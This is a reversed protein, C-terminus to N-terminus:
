LHWNATVGVRRPEGFQVFSEPTYGTRPDNGFYFGRIGYDKNTLNRAWLEVSWQPQRWGVSAHLLQYADSRENHSDSFYFGARGDVEARLYLGREFRYEAATHFQYAPAHPQRRGSLDIGAPSVYDGYEARLLGLAASLTMAPVPDWDFEAELGLNDSGRGTNATYQIFVSSGDDRPRTESTSLQADYRRMLFVSVRGRLADGLWSGKVGVEYNFLVEPDFRRLDDDIDVEINFGGAKYGRAVTGYVLTNAGLQRDLGVRAGWLRDGPAFAIGDSDVYEADHRELRVGLTLTTTAGLMTETQGYAAVRRVDFRSEFPGPLFTYDRRFDVDQDFWYLGAVWDTTDGFLRAADTSLLRLEATTRRQDRAYNDFSSYGIPHFGTFTWDEDYGYNSSVDAHAVIADIQVQETADFRARVSGYRSRQRDHGPEDSLTRRTNDLSFADFGNDIRVYGLTADVSLDTRPEFRLRARATLEDADDTARELFDNRIFGDSRYRDFAVRYGATEGMPGSVFGGIGLSDYNEARVRVGADFADTPGQTLVNIVGALGNAGYRTGQPGRFVEVQRVDYLTAATGLGSFDVGDIVLGVSANLPRSFESREGIGRIQFYRARSTGGAYNVNPILAILQELHQANRAGIRQAGIVSLSGPLSQLETERFDGTVVLTEIADAYAPVTFCAAAVFPLSRVVAHVTAITSSQARM